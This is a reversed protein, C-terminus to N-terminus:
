LRSPQPSEVPCMVFIFEVLCLSSYFFPISLLARPFFIHFFPSSLIKAVCIILHFCCFNSPSQKYTLKPAGAVKVNQSLTSYKKNLKGNLEQQNEKEHCMTKIKQCIYRSMTITGTIVTLVFGYM